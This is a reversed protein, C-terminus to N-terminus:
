KLKEIEEKTLDTIKQIFELESGEKLMKKAIKIKEKKSGSKLGNEYGRRAILHELNKQMVAERIAESVDDNEMVIKVIEDVNKIKENMKFLEEMEDNNLQCSLYALWQEEPTEIKRGEEIFKPLQFYHYTIKESLIENNSDKKIHCIEHYPSDEFENYGLIFIVVTKPLNIYKEGEKLSGYMIGSAYAESREIVNYENKNQIEVNVKENGTL